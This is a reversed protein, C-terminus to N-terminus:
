GEFLASSGAGLTPIAGARVAVPTTSDSFVFFCFKLKERGESLFTMRVATPEESSLVVSFALLCCGIFLAIAFLQAIAIPM